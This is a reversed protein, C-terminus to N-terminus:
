TETKLFIDEAMTPNWLHMMEYYRSWYNYVGLEQKQFTYKCYSWLKHILIHTDLNNQVLYTLM